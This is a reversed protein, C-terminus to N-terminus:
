SVSLVKTKQFIIVRNNDTFLTNMGSKNAIFGFTRKHYFSVHTSDKAYYWTKFKELNQWQETMIVLIGDEKLLRRIKQLEKAPFFFHEFCETAFIFDYQKDQDLEPFFIPDYDDCTYGNQELLRSLTPVPGCGYDLGKMGPKLYELAPKIAKNLFTVHGNHQIGNNHQLYRKEEEKKTPQFRTATFILYCKECHNYIRADPGQVEKFGLPKTCLPCIRM